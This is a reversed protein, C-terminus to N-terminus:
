FMQSVAQQLYEFNGDDIQAVGVESGTIILSRPTFSVKYNPLILQFLQQVNVKKDATGKESMILMFIQFNSTNDLLSKGQSLMKKDVCLTQVAIFFDREGMYGIEKLSPQHMIIQCEPIPFDIGCMLALKIEM